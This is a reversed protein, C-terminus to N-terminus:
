ILSDYQTSSWGTYLLKYQHFYTQSVNRLNFPEPKLATKSAKVRKTQGSKNTKNKSADRKYKHM